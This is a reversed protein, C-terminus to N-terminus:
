LTRPEWQEPADAYPQAIKKTPQPKPIQIYLESLLPATTTKQPSQPHPKGAEITVRYMFLMYEDMVIKLLRCCGNTHMFTKM